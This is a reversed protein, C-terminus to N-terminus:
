TAARRAALRNYLWALLWGGLFGDIFGYVLGLIAGPISISYGLYVKALLEIHEGGGVILALLTMLFVAAGSLIGGALGLAVKDLEM